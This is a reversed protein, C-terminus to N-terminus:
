VLFINRKLVNSVLIYELTVAGTFEHKDPPHPHYLHKSVQRTLHAPLVGPLVSLIACVLTVLEM